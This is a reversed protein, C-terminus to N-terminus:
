QWEERFCQTPTFGDKFYKFAEEDNIKVEEPLCNTKDCVVQKLESLWEVFKQGRDALSGKKLGEM